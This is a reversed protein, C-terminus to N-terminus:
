RRPEDPSLDVRILRLYPENAPLEMQGPPAHMQSLIFAVLDTAQPRTTTGPQDRPMSTHIRNEIDFLTYGEFDGDFTPGGFSPAGTGGGFGVGHCRQCRALYLQHGREAQVATYVGSLSSRLGRTDGPQAALPLVFHPTLSLFALVFSKKM